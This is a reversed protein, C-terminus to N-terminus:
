LLVDGELIEEFYSTFPVITCNFKLLTFTVAFLISLNLYNFWVIIEDNLLFLFMSISVIINCYRM